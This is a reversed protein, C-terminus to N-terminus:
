NGIRIFGSPKVLINKTESKTNELTITGSESVAGYPNYRVEDNTFGTASIAQIKDPMMKEKIPDAQGCKVLQYKKELSLIKLCYEEQETITLQQIYRLDSAIERSVSRLQLNPQFARYGPITIITLIVIVSIVVLVEMLTFARKKSILFTMM